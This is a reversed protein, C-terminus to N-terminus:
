NSLVVLDGDIEIGSFGFNGSIWEMTEKQYIFVHTFDNKYHWTSFDISKNYLGTMCFLKGHPKLLSKMLQFEKRPKFFHEVVECSVIFDYTKELLHPHPHFFPDYLEIQYNNERLITSVVPGTGSGFDLGTNENNFTSMVAKAMPMAFARYGPDNVDNNHKLYRDKEKQSDPLFLNPVFLGGCRECLYFKRSPQNYYLDGLGCCLPCYSKM